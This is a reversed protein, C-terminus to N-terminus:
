HGSDRRDTDSYSRVGIVTGKLKAQVRRVIIDATPEGGNDVVNELTVDAGMDKCVRLIGDRTPNIGVNKLRICSNPTILGAVIFFTASSIDGPVVIDTAYMEEPPTITATTGESEVEV